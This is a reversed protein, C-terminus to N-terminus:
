GNPEEGEVEEIELAILFVGSEGSVGGYKFSIEVLHNFDDDEWWGADTLGDIIPKVTPYLNAPDIKRRTPPSVVVSVKFCNFKHSFNDPKEPIKASRELEKLIEEIEESSVGSKKLAKHKRAKATRLEEKALVHELYEKGNEPSLGETIGIQQGRARMARAKSGKVFRNNPLNNSNLIEKSPIRFVLTEIM